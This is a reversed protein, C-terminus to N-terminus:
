AMNRFEFGECQPIGETAVTREDVTWTSCWDKRVLLGVVKRQGNVITDADHALVDHPYGELLYPESLTTLFAEFAKHGTDRSLTRRAKVFTELADISNWLYFPRGTDKITPAPPRNSFLNWIKSELTTDRPVPFSRAKKPLRLDWNASLRKIEADCVAATLGLAHILSVNDDFRVDIGQKIQFFLDKRLKDHLAETAWTFRSSNDAMYAAFRKSELLAALASLFTATLLAHEKAESKEYSSTPFGIAMSM